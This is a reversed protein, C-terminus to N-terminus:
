KKNIKYEEKILDYPPSNTQLSAKKPLSIRTKGPGSESFGMLPTKM